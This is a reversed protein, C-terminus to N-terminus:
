WKGGHSTAPKTALVYVSDAAYKLFPAVRSAGRLTESAAVVVKVPWTMVQWDSKQLGLGFYCDVSVQASGIADAFLTKLSPITWYRVEFGDGDRFRRRAQHYLCRVGFTTPMQVLSTGGSRLTRAIESVVKRADPRSLHQVVSYSFVRDFSAGRFPLFRGDAVVYRISLGLSKSVRRAAMISGLSPDIGVVDYGRRAAAISWRGWNCGVDLLSAGGGPPLRLEPIPYSTLTGILHKYAIGNTASIAFAVVPDLSPQGETAMRHIGLKEEPSLGLTELYLNDAPTVSDRQAANAIELSRQAIGMTQPVDDLLMVPVDDVIPYTHNSACRLRGDVMELAQHDRPCVLHTLYWSDM